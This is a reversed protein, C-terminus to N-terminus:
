FMEIDGLSFAWHGSRAPTGTLSRATLRPGQRPVPIMGPPRGLAVVHDAGSRRLASRVLAASTRRDPALLECLALEVAPGRRRARVVALGDTVGGSAVVARYHLDPLGYRWRLYDPTRRTRWRERPPPLRDLLQAVGVDRLVDPAPEGADCPLSWLEAPVRARATRALSLPGRVRIAMPVREVDVWGMGLYGPRSASNPTNFVVDTGARTLEDVAHMTLRRFVGAGRAEPHTATDVARVATVVGRPTDFEWRMLARYGVVRDDIQALWAPSEGFPSERHKWTFRRRDQGDDQWGLCTALLEIVQADDASTAPRIVMEASTRAATDPHTTM